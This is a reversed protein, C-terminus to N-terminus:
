GNRLASARPRDGPQTAEPRSTGPRSTDPRRMPIACALAFTAYLSAALTCFWAGHPTGVALDPVPKPAVFVVAIAAVAVLGAAVRAGGPGRGSVSYGGTMALLALALPATDGTAALPILGIVLPALILPRYPRGARRQFEAWGLLAGTAVGAPLIIGFTGTFTFLSDAGALERMFGRLSAAWTLGLVAGLAILRIRSM